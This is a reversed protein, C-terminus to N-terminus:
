STASYTALDLQQITGANGNEYLFLGTRRIVANTTNDASKLSFDTDSNGLYIAGVGAKGLGVLTSNGSEDISWIRLKSFVSDMEDIWGNGDEDYASLDTFGNGSTTGFLESGDNIIEDENKDLALYGSGSNLMSIEEEKGDTDLDFFFTQDSVSAVSSDLNIVLPDCLVPQTYDIIESTAERFSRSMILDLNVDLTRGDATHVTGTTSFSTTENESYVFRTEYRTTQMVYNGESSLSDSSSSIDSFSSDTRDGFILRLLYNMMQERLQELADTRERLTAYGVNKTAEYRSVLDSFSKGSGSNSTADEITNGSVASTFISVSSALYTKEQYSRASSLNLNSSQIIM